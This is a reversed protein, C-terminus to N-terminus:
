EQSFHLTKTRPAQFSRFTSDVAGQVSGAIDPFLTRHNINMSDLKDLIAIREVESCPFTHKQLLPRDARKFHLASVVRNLWVELSRYYDHRTFFGQQFVMRRNNENIEEVVDLVPYQENLLAEPKIRDKFRPRVEDVVVKNLYSLLELNLIWVCGKAAGNWDSLAFFLAVYPSRTWDLLPSPLGFHQGYQWLDMEEIRQRPLDNNMILNKKFEDRLRKLAIKTAYERESRLDHFAAVIRDIFRGLTPVLDWEEDAHGRFGYNHDRTILDPISAFFDALTPFEKKHVENLLYM